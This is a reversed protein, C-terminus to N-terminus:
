YVIPPYKKLFYKVVPSNISRQNSGWQEIKIFEDNSYYWYIMKKNNYTKDNIVINNECSFLPDNCSFMLDTKHISLGKTVKIREIKNMEDSNGYTILSIGSM